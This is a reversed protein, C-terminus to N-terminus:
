VWVTVWVGLIWLQNLYLIHWHGCFPIRGTRRAVHNMVLGVFDQRHMGMQQLCLSPHGESQHWRLQWM